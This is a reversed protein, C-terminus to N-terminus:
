NVLTVTKVVVFIEVSGLLEEEFGDTDLCIADFSNVVEPEDVLSQIIVVFTQLSEFLQMSDDGITIFYNILDSMDVFKNAHSSLSQFPVVDKNGLHWSIWFYQGFHAIEVLLLLIFELSHVVVLLGVSVVRGLNVYDGAQSHMVGFLIHKFLSNQEEFSGGLDLWFLDFPLEHNSWAVSSHIQKIISEFYIFFDV